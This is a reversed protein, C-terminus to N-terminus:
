ALGRLERVIKKKIDEASEDDERRRVPFADEWKPFNSKGMSAYQLISWLLNGFYAKHTREEMDSCILMALSRM